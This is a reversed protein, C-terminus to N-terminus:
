LAIDEESVLVLQNQYEEQLDNDYSGLDLPCTMERFPIIEGSDLSMAGAPKQLQEPTAKNLADLVDQWQMVRGGTIKIM